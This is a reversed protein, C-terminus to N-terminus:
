SSNPLFAHINHGTKHESVTNTWSSNITTKRPKHKLHDRAVCVSPMMEATIWMNSYDTYGRLILGVRRPSDLLQRKLVAIFLLDCLLFWLKTNMVALFTLRSETDPMHADLDPRPPPFTHAPAFSCCWHLCRGQNQKWWQVRSQGYTLKTKSKFCRTKMRIVNEM